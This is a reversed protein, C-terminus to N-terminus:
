DMWFYMKPTHTHFDFEPKPSEDAIFCAILLHAPLRFINRRRAWREQHKECLGREVIPSNNCRDVNCWTKYFGDCYLHKRAAKQQLWKVRQLYSM